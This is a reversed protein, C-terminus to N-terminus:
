VEPFDRMSQRVDEIGYNIYIQTTVLSSHGLARRLLELNKEKEYHQTAYYHRLCHPSILKSLHAKKVYRKIMYGVGRTSQIKGKLTPFYWDSKPSVDQWNKLIELVKAPVSLDRDKGGKGNLIRFDGSVRDIAKAPLSCVESVRLGCNAMIKMIALDRLGSLTSKNPQDLIMEM